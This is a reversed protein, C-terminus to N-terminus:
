ELEEGIYENIKPQLFLIGIPFIWFLICTMIINSNSYDKDEIKLLVYTAYFTIYVLSSFFLIDIELLHNSGVIGFIEYSQNWVFIFRMALSIFILRCLIKFLLYFKSDTKELIMAGFKGVSIVWYLVLFVGLFLFLGMFTSSAIFPITLIM